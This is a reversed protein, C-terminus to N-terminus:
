RAVGSMLITSASIVARSVRIKERYDARTQANSIGRSKANVVRAAEELWELAEQASGNAQLCMYHIFYVEESRVAPLLGASRLAEAACRSLALAGALDGQKLAIRAKLIQAVVLSREFGNSKSLVISMDIIRGAAALDNDLATEILLEAYYNAVLPLIANDPASQIM